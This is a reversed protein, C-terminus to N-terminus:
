INRILIKKEFTDAPIGFPFVASIGFCSFDSGNEEKATQPTRALRKRHGTHAEGVLPENGVSRQVRKHEAQEAAPLASCRPWVPPGRRSKPYKRAPSFTDHGKRVEKAASFRNQLRALLMWLHPPYM